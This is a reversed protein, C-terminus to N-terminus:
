KKAKLYAVKKISSFTVVKEVEYGYGMLFNLLQQEQVVDTHIEIVFRQIVERQLLNASGRLFNLEMGEIDVKVLDIRDKFYQALIGHNATESYFPRRAAM